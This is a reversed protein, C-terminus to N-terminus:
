KNAIAEATLKADIYSSVDQSEKYVSNKVNFENAVSSSSTLSGFGTSKSAIIKASETLSLFRTGSIFAAYDAPTSGTRAAMLKVADDKTAPDNIYALVRNWVSVLKVWDARHQALSQPSVTITDYILGPEDASTYIATSGAVAKLAQGANPQWAAIADVQGSAFVQPTQATPTNVITVDSETLGIKKLANLLMLHEVVGVELGIKKGKLEKLSKIGPKAIIMDNGNSYDTLMIIVNKAGNAGTVLADGNTVMVADVKGATFADMSPGYEFWLFEADVGAQKIWGKQIAVEWAVWGPWDSYAIKLAAANLAQPLALVALLAFCTIRRLLKMSSNTVNNNSHTVGKILVSCAPQRLIKAPVRYLMCQMAVGPGSTTTEPVLAMNAVFFLVRGPLWAQAIM